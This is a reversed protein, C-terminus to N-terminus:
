MFRKFYRRSASLEKLIVSVENDIERVKRKDLVSSDIISQALQALRHLKINDQKTM